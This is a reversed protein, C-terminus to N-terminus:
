SNGSDDALELSDNTFSFLHIGVSTSPPGEQQMKSHSCAASCFFVLLCQGTVYMVTWNVPFKQM